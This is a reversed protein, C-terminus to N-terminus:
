AHPSVEKTLEKPGAIEGLLSSFEESMEGSAAKAGVLLGGAEAEFRIVWVQRHRVFIHAALALSAVLFGAYAVPMGPDWSLELGTFEPAKMGTLYFRYPTDILAQLEPMQVFSWTRFLRKGDEDTVVLYAAPNYLNQSRSYATGGALAFDPLFAAVRVAIGAEPVTFWEGVSATYEGLEREDEARVVRVSVQAGGQWDEGMAAQYVSVGRHSLPRNVEITETRVERGDEIVTLRTKWDGIQESGPYNESWFEDVRVQFDRGPVSFVDGQYLVRLESYGFTNTVLLAGILALLSIHFLDIAFRGWRGKEALLQGGEERVRYRRKRLATRAREWAAAERAAPVDLRARHAMRSLAQPRKPRMPLRWYRLSARLRKLTCATLNLAFLGVLVYFPPSSFIHTLGLRDLRAFGQPGYRAILDISRNFSLQPLVTGILGALALLAILVIALRISTVWRWLLTGVGERAAFDLASRGARAASLLLSLALVLWFTLTYWAGAFLLNPPLWEPRVLSLVLGAVALLSLALALRPSSYFAWM